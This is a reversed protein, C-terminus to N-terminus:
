PPTKLGRMDCNGATQEHNFSPATQDKKTEERRPM